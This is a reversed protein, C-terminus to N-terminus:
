ESYESQSSYHMETSAKNVVHETVIMHESELLKTDSLDSSDYSHRDSVDSNMNDTGQGSIAQDTNCSQRIPQKQMKIVELSGSLVLSGSLLLSGKIDENDEEKEDKIEKRWLTSLLTM